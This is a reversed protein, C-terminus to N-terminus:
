DLRKRWADLWLDLVWQDLVYYLFVYSFGRFDEEDICELVVRM